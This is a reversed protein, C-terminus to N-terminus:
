RGAPSGPEHIGAGPQRREGDPARGRSRLLRAGPRRRREGARRRPRRPRPPRHLRRGSRNVGGGGDATAAASRRAVSRQFDASRRRRDPRCRHHHRGHRLQDRSRNRAGPRHPRRRGGRGRARVRRSGAAARAIGGSLGDRGRLPVPAAEFGATEGCRAPRSLRGRAAHGRREVGDDGHARVGQGGPEGPELARCFPLIRALTRGAGGRSRPQRLFADAIGCGRERRESRGASDGRGGLAEMPELVRGEHDIREGIEFRLEGPVQAAPKPPLDLRYLHLRNQRGIALTDSFGRTAILAVDAFDEEVIANTVLTTGHILDDVDSWALNVARLAALLGAVRDDSRSPVKAIRTGAPERCVAVVDTFTGGVDVGVQWGGSM